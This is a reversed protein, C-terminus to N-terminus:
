RPRGISQTILQVMADVSAAIRAEPKAPREIMIVPLSLLRAAILKAATQEGGSNKSVLLTLGHKGILAMESEVTFPPRALVLTWCKPVPEDPAEISRILGALDVRDTFYRIHKRGITLFVAAKRPVLRAAESIDAAMTWNDGEHPRWPPRELRLYDIGMACAAAFGNASIRAAFPHTVDAVLRVNERKLFRELGEIGGFNGVRLKGEPSRFTKTDGALSTIVDYGNGALRSALSRAEGTGGLILVHKPV